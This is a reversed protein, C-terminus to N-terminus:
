AEVRRSRRYGLLKRPAASEIDTTEIHKMYTIGGLIQPTDWQWTKARMPVFAGPLGLGIVWGVFPVDIDVFDWPLAAAFKDAITKYLATGDDNLTGDSGVNTERVPSIAVLGKKPPKFWPLAILKNKLSFAINVCNALPTWAEDATSTGADLGPAPVVTITNNYLLEYQDNYGMVTVGDMYCDTPVHDRWPGAWAHDIFSNGLAKAGDILLDTGFTGELVSRYWFTNVLAQGRYRMHSTLKYLGNTM